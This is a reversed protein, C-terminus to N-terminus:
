KSKGVNNKCKVYFYDCKSLHEELSGLNGVWECKGYEKNEESICQVELRCLARYLGKNESLPHLSDKISVRDNPCQDKTQM